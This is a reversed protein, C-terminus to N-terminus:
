RAGAFWLILLVLVVFMGCGLKASRERGSAAIVFGAVGVTLLVSMSLVDASRRVWRLAASGSKVCISIEDRGDGSRPRGM